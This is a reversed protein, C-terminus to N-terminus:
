CAPVPAPLDLDATTILQGAGIFRRIVILGAEYVEAGAHTGSADTVVWPTLGREFADVAVKCVCSEITLGCIVVDRWGHEAFVEDGEPTFVTYGPKDIVVTARDAYPRLEDIIDIEPSAAVSTWKILREYQSGPANIFRSFVSDGGADQWRRVLDTVVPVVYASEPKVFGNQMDVVVLVSGEVEVM